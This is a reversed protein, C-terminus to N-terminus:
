SANETGHDGEKLEIVIHSTKKIIKHSRGKSQPWARKFRPGENIRAGSVVLHERRKGDNNEANAIASLLVKRIHFAGKTTCFHLKHLADQAKMGRVWDIVLRGKRPNLRVYKAIAKM